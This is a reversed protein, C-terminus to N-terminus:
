MGGPQGQNAGQNAGDNKQQPPQVAAKFKQFSMSQLIVKGPGSLTNVCCGEGGCCITFPGGSFRAGLRTTHEFGVVSDHDIVITEDAGLTKVVVTGGAALFATGSGTVQQRCCGLGGFTSTICGFDMNMDVSADGLSSMYAGRKAIIKNGWENLNIPIVKAPFSPTLGIYGDRGDKNEFQVKCFPEGACTRSCTGCTSSTKVGPSMFMMSGPEATVSEGSKLLISLIQCDPGTIVYNSGPPVEVNLITFGSM